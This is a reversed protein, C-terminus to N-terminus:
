LEERLRMIAAEGIYAMWYTSLYEAIGKVLTFTILLLAIMRWAALGSPPIIKQWAFLNPARQGGQGFVQNMIPILLVTTAGDMLGVVIM